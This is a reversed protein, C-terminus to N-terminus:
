VARQPLSSPPPEHPPDTSQSPYSGHREDEAGAGQEGCSRCPGLRLRLRCWRRRGAPRNGLRLAGLRRRLGRRRRRRRRRRGRWGRREPREAAAEQAGVVRALGAPVQAPMAARRRDDDLRRGRRPRRARRLRPGFTRPALPAFVLFPFCACRVFALRRARTATAAVIERWAAVDMSPVSSAPPSASKTRTRASVKRSACALPTRRPGRTRALPRRVLQLRAAERLAQRRAPRLGPVRVLPLARRDPPLPSRQLELPEAAAGVNRAALPEPDQGQALAPRQLLDGQSRAGPWAHRAGRSSPTRRRAVLPGSSATVTSTAANGAEDYATVAYRYLGGNHPRQGHIDDGAGTYVVTDGRRVRVLATDASAAWTITATRTTTRAGVQALSPLPGTTGSRSARAAPTARATAAARRRERRGTDPGSYADQTCEEVQSTADAGQFAVVLPHNYWSNADTPGTPGSRRRGDACDRRIRGDRRGPGRERRSGCADGVVVVESDPGERSEPASCSELGSTGDKGAFSVGFPQNYWGNSGASRDPTATVAPATADHACRANGALDGWSAAAEPGTRAGPASRRQATTPAQTRSRRAAQSAPPRTPRRCRLSSPSPGTTGAPETRLGFRWPTRFRLSPRRVQARAGHQRRQRRRGDAGRSRPPPM